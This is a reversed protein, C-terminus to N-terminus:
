SISRAKMLYQKKLGVM